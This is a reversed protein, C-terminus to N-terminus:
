SRGGRWADLLRRVEVMGPQGQRLMYEVPAHGQFLAGRNGLTIWQDAWEPGFCTHLAKYIGFLLSIRTLTDQSLSLRAGPDTRWAHFTSSAVGGLLGRRQTESLGWKDAMHLFGKIASASLRKRTAAGALDPATDFSYGAIQSTAPSASM